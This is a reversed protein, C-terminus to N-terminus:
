HLLARVKHFTTQTGDVATFPIDKAISGDPLAKDWGVTGAYPTPKCGISFMLAALIIFLNRNMNAGLFLGLHITTLYSLLKEELALDITKPANAISMKYMTQSNLQKKRNNKIDNPESSM